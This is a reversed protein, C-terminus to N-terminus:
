IFDFYDFRFGITCTIFSQEESANFAIDGLSVPFANRYVFERNANNANTLVSIRIDSYDALETSGNNYAVGSNLKHPVELNRKMWNFVEGYVKLDEDLLAEIAVTGFEIRDGTFPITALKFGTDVANIDMSPHQIQQANFSLYPYNEKSITVKFGTPNFYNTSCVDLSM